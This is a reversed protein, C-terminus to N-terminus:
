YITVTSQSLRLASLEREARHVAESRDGLSRLVRSYEELQDGYGGPPIRDLQCRTLAPHLAVSSLADAARALLAHVEAKDHKSAAAALLTHALYDRNGAPEDKTAAADMTKLADEPHGEALQLEGRTRLKAQEAFRGFSEPQEHRLIQQLEQRVRGQYSSKVLALDLAADATLAHTPTPSATFGSHEDRLCSEYQSLRCELYAKALLRAAYQERDSTEKDTTMGHELDNIAAEAKGIEADLSALYLYGDSRRDAKPSACLSLIARRADDYKHDLFFMISEIEAASEPYKHQRLYDVWRPVEQPRGVILLEQSLAYPAYENDPALAIAHRLNAIAEEDRNLMRLALTPYLWGELADPYNLTLDHFAAIAIEDEGADIARMGRIRDQERRSLRSHLGAELARKYCERGEAQRHLSFLIDARMSYALAFEPDSHVARDLLAAADQPHSSVLQRAQAFDALASWSGTTADEPPVDLRAIDNKAEGAMFRIWDGVNRVASLLEDSIAGNPNPTASSHWAFDKSWQDRYRSPTTDPQQVDLKLEYNGASGQVTPLIVRVAGARMAIERATPRDIVAGPTKKMQQLIDGVRNQDLLRVQASQELGARLLETVSDLAKEGTENKVPALYILAGPEVKSDAKSRYLRLAALFLSVAILIMAAPKAIRSWYPLRPRVSASGIQTARSVDTLANVLEHVNEFRDQPNLALCRSITQDWAPSIDPVITAVTPAPQKLRKAAEAFPIEDAFPRQCTVMEFLVLGLSYIDSAVSVEGREFQEPAMYVLTGMLTRDGTLSTAASAAATPGPARTEAALVRALGFDTVVVRPAPSPTGSGSSQLNSRQATSLPTTKVLSSSVLLVNSPKFDRHVVGVAHAAALADIMQLVLPLAEASIFRGKRRLHTSLTEGELLEMTLFTINSADIESEGSALVHREIDFTRCVNAHTIMRTLQVERRFRSVMRPDSAIEPRIAKLAIRSNLEIDFAEYVQGMGGQGIFRVIQFRGAVVKGARLLPSAALETQPPLTSLAPHELFSGAKEDAALLRIVESELECDGRCAEHVFYDREIAPLDLAAEFIQSVTQWRSLSM